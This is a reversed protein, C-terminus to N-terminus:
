DGTVGQCRQPKLAKKKKRKLDSLKLISKTWVLIDTDHQVNMKWFVLQKKIGNLMMLNDSSIHDSNMVESDTDNPVQDHAVTYEVCVNAILM